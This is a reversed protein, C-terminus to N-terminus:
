SIQKSCQPCYEQDAGFHKEKAHKRCNSQDSFQKECQPCCFYGSEDKYIFTSPGGETSYEASDYDGYGQDGYNSYEDYIDEPFDDEYNVVNSGSTGIISRENVAYTDSACTNANSVVPYPESKVM